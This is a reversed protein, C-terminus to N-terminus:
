EIHQNGNDECKNYMTESIKMLDDSHCLIWFGEKGKECLCVIPIKDEKDALEKTSKWLSIVAHRIRYKCEVFLSSHLTDSRTQKGNGGSLPTRTTNFFSAVKRENAKWTKDTM